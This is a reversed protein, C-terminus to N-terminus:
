VHKMSPQVFQRARELQDYDPSLELADVLADVTAAPDELVGAFTLSLEPKVRELLRTMALHSMGMKAARGLDDGRYRRDSTMVEDLPRYIHLYRVPLSEIGDFMGLWVLPNHKVGFPGVAANRRRANYEVVSQM